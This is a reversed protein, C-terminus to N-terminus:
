EQQLTQPKSTSSQQIKNFSSAKAAVFNDVADNKRIQQPSRFLFTILSAKLASFRAFMEM